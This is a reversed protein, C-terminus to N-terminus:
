IRGHNLFKATQYIRIKRSRVRAFAIYPLTYPLFQLLYPLEGIAAWVYWCDHEQTLETKSLSSDWPDSLSQHSWHRSVPRALAFGIPSAYVYGQAAHAKLTDLPDGLSPDAAHIALYQEFPTM